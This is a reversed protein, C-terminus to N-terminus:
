RSNVFFLERRFLKKTFCSTFSQHGNKFFYVVNMGKYNKYVFFRAEYNM